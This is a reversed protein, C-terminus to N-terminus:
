LPVGTAQSGRDVRVYVHSCDDLRTPVFLKSRAHNSTPVPVVRSITDRLRDAYSVPDFTADPLPDFFEGPLRLDTGYVLQAPTAHLDKKLSSRLGLLVVPLVETWRDKNAAM